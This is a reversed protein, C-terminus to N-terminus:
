WFLHGPLPGGKKTEGYLPKKLNLIRDEAFNGSLTVIVGERQM